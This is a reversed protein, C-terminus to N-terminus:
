HVSISVLVSKGRTQRVPSNEYPIPDSASIRLRSRSKDFILAELGKVPASASKDDSSNIISLVPVKELFEQCRGAITPTYPEIRAYFDHSFTLQESTVGNAKEVDLTM